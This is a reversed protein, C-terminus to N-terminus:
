NACWINPESEALSAHNSFFPKRPVPQGAQKLLQDLHDNLHAEIFYADSAITKLAGEIIEGNEAKAVVTKVDSRLEDLYRPVDGRSFPLGTKKEILEISAFEFRLKEIFLQKRHYKKKLNSTAIGSNSSPYGSSGSGDNLQSPVDSAAISENGSVNFNGADNVSADGYAADSSVDDNATTAVGSPAESGVGPFQAVANNPSAAIIIFTVASLLVSQLCRFGCFNSLGYFFRHNEFSMCMRMGVGATRKWNFDCHKMSQNGCVGIVTPIVCHKSLFGRGFLASPDDILHCSHLPEFGWGGTKSVPARGISSCEQLNPMFEM